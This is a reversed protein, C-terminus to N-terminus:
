RASPAQAVQLNTFGACLVADRVPVPGPDGLAPAAEALTVTDARGDTRRYTALTTYAPGNLYPRHGALTDLEKLVATTSRVLAGARMQLRLSEAVGTTALTWDDESLVM